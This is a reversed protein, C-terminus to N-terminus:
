AQAVAAPENGEDDAFQMAYLKAYAGNKAVLEAHTGTEMVRGNEMLFICDADVITSLRHAIVLTTRGEKLRSLAAQVQRETETDLASTAEDLLLIPADKLMARAIAVRQRQGGSLKAGRGGVHTDYGDAFESIFEAAGADAAARVIEEETADPKGYAINARVTDDFLLIEQSVLAINNRLSEMTLDRVDQGDITVKGSEVDYFRPILNLVTSKGAGSPGVLAVTKGAEIDLNIGSLATSKDTYRFHVDEFRIKGRTNLIPRADERETINSRLDLVSFVRQAAALGQQLTANLNAINKMPKYAALLAAMFSALEGTTMTGDIVQLGGYLIACALAIGGLSEMLPRSIAQVRAAKRTLVFVREIADSARETERQEMTYAKVHRAGQFTEDLITTLDGTEVQTNRSIKRIRKGIRVIPYLALPFVFVTLLALSWNHFILIMSLFIVLLSDKVLGTLAKAMSYRLLNADNIFRSILNGVSNDHFFQLDARIVGRYMSTQLNAVMRHGIIEMNIAEFYGAMGSIIALGIIAAPLLYLMSRDRAILVQDVVDKLLYIMSASTGAVLVMCLFTLFIRKRQPWLQNRLLRRVLIKSSEHRDDTLELSTVPVQANDAM